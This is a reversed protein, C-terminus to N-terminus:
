FNQKKTNQQQFYFGPIFLLLFLPQILFRRVYFIAMVRDDFFHILLIFVLLLLIFFFLYLVAALKVHNKNKFIVYIIFISLVANVFYRFFLHLYLKWEILPPVSNTAYEGKFFVLLPDYFLTNEYNRILAFGLVALLFLFVRVKHKLLNQFM